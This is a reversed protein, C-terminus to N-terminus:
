PTVEEGCRLMRAGYYPNALPGKAQLWLGPEPAMPCHYIKMAALTKDQKRLQKALDVVTTSFPLFQKRADALDKALHWSTAALRQLLASSPATTPFANTLPQLLAPLKAVQANFGDLNDAALAQSVGAAGTFFAQLLEHQGDATPAADAGKQKNAEIIAAMRVGRMEAVTARRLADAERHTLMKNTAPQVDPSAVPESPVPAAPTGPDLPPQENAPTAQAV